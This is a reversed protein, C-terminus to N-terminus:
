TETSPCVFANHWCCYCCCCDRYRRRRRCCLFCAAMISSMGLVCILPNYIQYCVFLVLSGRAASRTQLESPAMPLPLWAPLPHRKFTAHCNTIASPRSRSRRMPYTLLLTNSPLKTAPGQYTSQRCKDFAFWIVRNGYLLVFLRFSNAAKIAIQAATVLTTEEDEEENVPLRLTLSVVILVSFMDFEPCSSGIVVLASSGFFSLFFLRWRRCRM